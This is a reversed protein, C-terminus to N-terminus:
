VARDMLALVRRAATVASSTMKMRKLEPNCFHDVLEAIVGRPVLRRLEEGPPGAAAHQGCMILVNCARHVTAANLRHRMVVDKILLLIGAALFPPICGDAVASINCIAHCIARAATESEIHRRLGNALLEAIQAATHGAVIAKKPSFTMASTLVGCVEIWVKDSDVFKELLATLLLVIDVDHLQAQLEAVGDILRYIASCASIVSAQVAARSQSRLSDILESIAGKGTLLHKMAADKKVLDRIGECADTFAKPDKARWLAAVAKTAKYDDDKSLAVGVIGLLKGVSLCVDEQVADGLALATARQLDAGGKGGAFIRFADICASKRRAEHGPATTRATDLDDWYGGHAQTVHDDWYGGHAQKVHDHNETLTPTDKGCIHCM